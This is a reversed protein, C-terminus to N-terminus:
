RITIHITMGTADDRLEGVTEGNITLPHWGYCGRGKDAGQDDGAQVLAIRAGFVDAATGVDHGNGDTDHEMVRLSSANDVLTTLNITM